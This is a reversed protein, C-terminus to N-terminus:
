NPMTSHLGGEGVQSAKLQYLIINQFRKAVVVEVVVVEVVVVVVVVVAVEVVVVVVM